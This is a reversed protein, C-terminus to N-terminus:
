EVVQLTSPSQMATKMPSAHEEHKQGLALMAALSL